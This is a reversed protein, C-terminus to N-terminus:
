VKAQNYDTKMKILQGRTVTKCKTGNSFLRKSNSEEIDLFRTGITLGVWSSSIKQVTIFYKKLNKSREM